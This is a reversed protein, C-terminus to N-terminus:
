HVLRKLRRAPLFVISQVTAEVHIIGLYTSMLLRGQLWPPPHNMPM